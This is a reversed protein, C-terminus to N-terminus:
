RAGSEDAQGAVQSGVTRISDVRYSAGHMWRDEGLVRGSIQVTDGEHVNSPLKGNLIFKGGYADSEDIDAYRLEWHGGRTHVRVLRGRIWSYDRAHGYRVGSPLSQDVTQESSESKVQATSSDTTPEEAVVEAQAMAEADASVSSAAETAPVVTSSVIPTPKHIATPKSPSSRPQRVTAVSKSDVPRGPVSAPKAIRPDSMRALQRDLEKSPRYAHGHDQHSDRRSACGVALSAAFVLGIRLFPRM